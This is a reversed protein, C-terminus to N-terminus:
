EIARIADRAAVLQQQHEILERSQAPQVEELRRQGEHGAVVQSGEQDRLREILDVLGIARIVRDEVVAMHANCEGGVVLARGLPDRLGQPRSSLQTRLAVVRPVPERRPEAVQHDRALLRRPRQQRRALHHLQWGVLRHHHDRAMRRDPGPLQAVELVAVERPAHQRRGHQSRAEVRVPRRHPGVVPASQRRQGGGFSRRGAICRAEGVFAAMLIKM